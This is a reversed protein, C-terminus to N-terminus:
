ATVTEYAGKKMDRAARNQQLMNKNTKLLEFQSHARRRSM